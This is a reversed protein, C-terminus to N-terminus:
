SFTVKAAYAVAIIAVGLNIERHRGTLAKVACYTVFGIGIGEAISFTFPIALATMLAPLAETIDEWDVDKLDKAFLVAVFILAPATAYAPVAGAIPALVLSALFLVGVTVAVLGTKGGIGAASEIYATVSSTGLMAGAMSGTSDCLLAKRVNKLKGDKVLGAQQGVAMLTGSTDLMLLFLFSLIVLLLVSAPAGTFHLQLFTPAISPMPAALSPLPQLRLAFATGTAAVIGILVAGTIKRAWLAAIVFLGLAAVLVKPDALHGPMLLTDKSAVVLGAGEFGILALFFGIGAGIARKQSQPIANVLGERLPSASIAVFLIGALFVCGLGLRWDGALLPVV